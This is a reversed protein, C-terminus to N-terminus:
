RMVRYPEPDIAGAAGGLLLGAALSSAAPATQIGWGGQGACWFFGPAAPDFGYVPLRSPAFSRLGAWRREVAEIPWDFVSQFAAIARAVDVEEPAADCPACPTEDHPSLWLRNDGEGKFYFGGAADIILPLDRLNQKGVRMQLMTRRMPQLGIPPVGCRGAVVDAWAGAANVLARAEFTEEGCRVLWLGGSREAHDLPSSLRLKGGNRRLTMLYRLHVAAVDIDACTPDHWGQTWQERIAPLARELAARDLHEGPTEAPSGGSSSITLAGRPRLEGHAEFEARSALTLPMVGPGGYHGLWFAASRGTAHMAPNAEAEIVLTSGHEALRAALSAGAIGGGVILFDFATM